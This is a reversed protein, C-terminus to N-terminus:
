QLARVHFHLFLCALRQIASHKVKSLCISGGGMFSLNQYASSLHPQGAEPCSLSARKTSVSM